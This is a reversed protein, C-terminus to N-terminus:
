NLESEGDLYEEKLKEIDHENVPEADNKNILNKIGLKAILHDLKLHKLLHEM